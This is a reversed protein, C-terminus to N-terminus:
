YDWKMKKKLQEKRVSEDDCVCPGNSPESYAVMKFLGFDGILVGVYGNLLLLLLRISDIAGPDGPDLNVCCRVDPWLKIDGGGSNLLLFNISTCSRYVVNFPEGYGICLSGIFPLSFGVFLWRSVVDIIFAVDACDNVGM